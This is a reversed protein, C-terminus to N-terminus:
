ILVSPPNNGKSVDVTTTTKKSILSAGSGLAQPTAVQSVVAKNLLVIKSKNELTVSSAPASSKATSKKNDGGKM